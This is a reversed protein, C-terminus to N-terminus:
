GRGAGFVKPRKEIFATMGEKQDPHAFCQGFAKKEEALGDELTTEASHKILQKCARV